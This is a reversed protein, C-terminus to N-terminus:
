LQICSGAEICSGSAIHYGNEIVTIGEQKVAGSPPTGLVSGKGIVAKEGIISKEVKCNAEIRANPLIISDKVIAGEGVYAGSGLISNNVEGLITCGNSGLSGFIKADAGVYQPPLLDENSFVRFNSSYLDLPPNESLLEMSAEYYSPITGVDKWYGSFEFAFMRKGEALLSPIVDKGFDNSSDNRGEDETLARRLVSWNFIYIGMSALTSDPNPDKEQFKTIRFEEDVSMTGFRSAEEIPVDTVLITADAENKIHEELMESYDMKYIHDGSLILVYNPEYKDIFDMNQYIANATGKYWAGGNMGMYPPLVHVGGQESDLDWASGIGVYSNLSFPKYQTLVGVTNIGSNICNSLSFDIIRYKGGFSLAPKAISTTLAYLRSGQGGALLMAICKNREM